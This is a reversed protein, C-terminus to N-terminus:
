CAAVGTLDGGSRLCNRPRGSQVVQTRITGRTLGTTDIETPPIIAAVLNASCYMLNGSTPDFAIVSSPGSAVALNVALQRPVIVTKIEAWSGLTCASGAGALCSCTSMAVGPALAKCDPGDFVAVTYCTRDGGSPYEFKIGVAKARSVAESRAFQIDGLLESSVSKVRQGEIYRSFSPVSIALIAGLVVVAVLMELLTFGRRSSIQPGKTM